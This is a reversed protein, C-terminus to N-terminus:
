ASYVAIQSHMQGSRRPISAPKFLHALWPNRRCLTSRVSRGTHSPPSTHGCPPYGCRRPGYLRPDGVLRSSDAVPVPRDRYKTCPSLRHRRVTSAVPSTAIATSTLTTAPSTALNGDVLVHITCPSSPPTAMTAQRCALMPISDLYQPGFRTANPRTPDLEPRRRSTASVESVRTTITRRPCNMSRPTALQSGLVRADM